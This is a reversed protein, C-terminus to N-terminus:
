DVPIPINYPNDVPNTVNKRIAIQTGLNDIKYDVPLNGCIEHIKSELNVYNWQGLLILNLVLLVMVLMRLSNKLLMSFVAMKGEKKGLFLSFLPKKQHDNQGNEQDGM